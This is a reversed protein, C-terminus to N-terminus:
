GKGHGQMARKSEREVKISALCVKCSIIPRRLSRVVLLAADDVPDHMGLEM